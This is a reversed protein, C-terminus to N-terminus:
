ENAFGSAGRAWRAVRRLKVELWDLARAVLFSREALLAAGALMALVGPGPIFLMVVGAFLLALGVGVSVIQMLLRHPRRQRHRYRQQFRKGPPAATFDSFFTEVRRRLQAFM